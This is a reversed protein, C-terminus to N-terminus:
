VCEFLTVMSLSTATCPRSLSHLNVNRRTFSPDSPDGTNVSSRLEDFPASALAEVSLGLLSLTPVREFHDEQRLMSVIKSLKRRQEPLLGFHYSCTPTTPVLAEFVRGRNISM